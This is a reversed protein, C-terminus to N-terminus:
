AEPSPLLKRGSAQTLLTLKYFSPFAAHRTSGRGKTAHAAVARYTLDETVKYMDTTFQEEDRGGGM